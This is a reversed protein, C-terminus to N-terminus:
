WIFAVCRASQLFSSVRRVLECRTCSGTTMSLGAARLARARRQVSRSRLSRRRVGEKARRDARAVGLMARPMRDRFAEFSDHRRSAISRDVFDDVADGSGLAGEAQHRHSGHVDEGVLETQRRVIEPTAPFDNASLLGPQDIQRAGVSFMEHLQGADPEVRLHHLFGAQRKM